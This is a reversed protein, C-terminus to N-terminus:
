TCEAGSINISVDGLDTIAQITDGANLVQAGEWQLITKGDIYVGPILINENSPVEGLPVLYVTVLEGANQDNSIDITKVIVRLDSKVTYIVSLTSTVLGRGLNTPTIVDFAM